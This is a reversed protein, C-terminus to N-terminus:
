AGGSAPTPSTSGVADLVTRLVRRALDLDDASLDATVTAHWDTAADTIAALAARGDGTLRVHPSRQHGPNPEYSILGEVALADVIRQVAQRTVGLRRAAGPVTWDGESVVSLVQWRAQSQGAHGALEDGRRRLAGALEYVDAVLLTFAAPASREAM